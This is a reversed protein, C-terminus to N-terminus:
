ARGNVALPGGVSLRIAHPPTQRYGRGQARYGETLALCESVSGEGLTQLEIWM